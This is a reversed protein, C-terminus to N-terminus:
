RCLKAVADAKHGPLLHSYVLTLKFDSHGMLERVTVLDVGKMVLKSAFHHRLDHFRFNTLQATDRLAQWPRKIDTLPEGMRNPFVLGETNPSVQKWVKLAALAETNLPIHRTNGSKATHGSVTIQKLKLNIASWELHLLEGRRAGTNLALIVMCQFYLPSRPLAARLRTEEDEALFRVVGLKDVKSLKVDKLPHTELYGWEVAQSLAAKLATLDRNITVPKIGAKLRQSRWKDVIWPTLDTLRKQSFEAFTHTLRRLTAAGSNRNTKVWPGYVQSLYSALTHANREQKDAQIRARKEDNPKMGTVVEGLVAKAQERAKKLTIAGMRGIKTRTKRGDHTLYRVYFTKLGSPQIRVLLGDTLTDSHEYPEAQPQLSELYAENFKLKM